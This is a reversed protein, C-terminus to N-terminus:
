DLTVGPPLTIDIEIDELPVDDYGHSERLARWRPDSKIKKYYDTNIMDLVNPGQPTWEFTWSLIM